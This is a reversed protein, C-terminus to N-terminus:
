PTETGLVWQRLRKLAPQAEAASYYIDRNLAKLTQIAEIRPDMSGFRGQAAPNRCYEDALYEIAHGLVELARGEDPSLQRRVVPRPEMPSSLGTVLGTESIELLNRPSSRAFSEKPQTRRPKLM